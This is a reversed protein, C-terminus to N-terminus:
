EKAILWVLEQATRIVHLAMQGGDDGTFLYHTHTENGVQMESQGALFYGAGAFSTMVQQVFGAQLNMVVGTATYAEWHRYRAANPVKAVLAPPVDGVVRHSGSPLRIAPNLEASIAAVTLVEGILQAQAVGGVMVAASLMIGFLLMKPRVELLRQTIMPRDYPSAWSGVIFFWDGPAQRARQEGSRLSWGRLPM